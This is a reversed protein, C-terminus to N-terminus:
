HIGLMGVLRDDCRDLSATCRLQSGNRCQQSGLRVELHHAPTQERFLCMGSVQKSTVKIGSRLFEALESLDILVPAPGKGFKVPVEAGGAM